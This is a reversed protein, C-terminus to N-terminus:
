FGESGHHFSVTRQEGPTASAAPWSGSGRSLALPPPCCERCSSVQGPDARYKCETRPSASLPLLWVLRNELPPACKQRPRLSRLSVSGLSVSGVSLATVPLSCVARREKSVAHTGRPPCRESVTTAEAAELGQRSPAPSGPAEVPQGEQRHHPTRLLLSLFVLASPLRLCAIPRPSSSSQPPLPPSTVRQEGGRPACPCGRGRHGAGASQM